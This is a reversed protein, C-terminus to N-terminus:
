LVVIDADFAYGIDIGDHTVHHRDKQLACQILFQVFFETIGFVIVAVFLRVVATISMGSFGHM